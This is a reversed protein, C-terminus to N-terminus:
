AGTAPQAVQPGRRQQSAVATAIAAARNGLYRQGGPATLILNPQECIRDRYGSYALVVRLPVPEVQSDSQAQEGSRRLGPKVDFVRQGRPQPALV